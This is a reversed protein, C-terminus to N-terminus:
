LSWRMDQHSDVLHIGPVQRHGACSPYCRRFYREFTIRVFRLHGLVGPFRFFLSQIGSARAATVYPGPVAGTGAQVVRTCFGRKRRSRM